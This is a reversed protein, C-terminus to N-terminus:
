GGLKNTEAHGVGDDFEFGEEVETAREVGYGVAETEEQAVVGDAVREEVVKGLADVKVRCEGFGDGFDDVVFAFDIVVGGRLQKFYASLHRAFAVFDIDLDVAGQSMGLAFAPRGLTGLDGDAVAAHDDGHEVGVAAFDLTEDVVLGGGTLGGVELRRLHHFEVVVQSLQLKGLSMLYLLYQGAKGVHYPRLNISQDVCVPEQGAYVKDTGLCAKGEGYVSAAGDYVADGFDVPEIGAM